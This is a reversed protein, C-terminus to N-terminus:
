RLALDKQTRINVATWHTHLNICAQSNNAIM